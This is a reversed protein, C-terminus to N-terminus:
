AAHWTSLPSLSSLPLRAPARETGKVPDVGTRATRLTTEANVAIELISITKLYNEMPHLKWINESLITLLSSSNAHKKFTKQQQKSNKNHGSQWPLKFVARGGSSAVTGIIQKWNSRARSLWAALEATLDVATEPERLLHYMAYLWGVPM